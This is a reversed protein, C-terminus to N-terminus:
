VLLEMGVHVDKKKSYFTYMYRFKTTLNSSVTKHPYCFYFSLHLSPAVQTTRQVNGDMCRTQTTKPVAM